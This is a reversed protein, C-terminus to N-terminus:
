DKWFPLKLAFPLFKLLRKFNSSLFGLRSDEDGAATSQSATRGIIQTPSSPMEGARCGRSSKELMISLEDCLKRQFTDLMAQADAVPVWPPLQAPIMKLHHGQVGFRGIPPDMLALLHWCVPCCLRSTALDGLRGTSAAQLAQHTHQIYSMLFNSPLQYLLISKIV